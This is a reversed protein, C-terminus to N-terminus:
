QQLVTKIPAKIATMAAMNAANTAAKNVIVTKSVNIGPVVNVGTLAVNVASMALENSEEDTMQSKNQYNIVVKLKWNQLKFVRGSYLRRDYADGSHIGEHIMENSANYVSSGVGTGVYVFASAFDSTKRKTWGWALELNPTNKRSSSPTVTVGPLDVNYSVNGQDNGYGIPNGKDDTIIIEPGIYTQGPKVQGPGHVDPDFYVKGSKDDRVWDTFKPADNIIKRDSINPDDAILGFPDNFSAPNNNAYAYLSIDETM